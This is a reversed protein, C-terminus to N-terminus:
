ARCAAELRAILAPDGGYVRAIRQFTPGGPALGAYTLFNRRM